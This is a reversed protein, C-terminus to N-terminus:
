FITALNLSLEEFDRLLWAANSSLRKGRPTKFRCMCLGHSPALVGSLKIIPSALLTFSVASFQPLRLLAQFIEMLCCSERTHM